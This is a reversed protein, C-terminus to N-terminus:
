NTAPAPKASLFIEKGSSKSKKALYFWGAILWLAAVGLAIYPEKYSMGAVLSSDGVKIPGILYFLMCIGNAIVGFVPVVFHKFGSFTHHEKFAVIAVVCTTMYLLFTGFNSILTVILVTNPLSAYTTPAFIGFSYWISKAYMPDLAAPSTGGLYILVTFIGIFISIIGLAWIAKHPSLTTPHLEGFHDGVEADRGMAYTVRAGTSLCALTTGILALFVTFAQVEMFVVGAHPSGFAWAGVIKMMDGIPASSAGASIMTYGSNLFFNAAFYEILYCIAGQIILSLLIARAIDKKPNIAEEGMSSVSEFGVLCLIAICAQVVINSFGHPAVVSGPSEHYNFTLPNKADGATGTVGGDKATYSINFPKTQLKGDKDKLWKGDKDTQFDPYPDGTSLGMGTLAALLDADKNKTKDLDDDAVQRDQTKIAAVPQLKGDKDKVYKGDKDKVFDYLPDGVKAGAAKEFAQVEADLKTKAPDLDDATLNVSSTYKPSGDAYSDPTPTVVGKDDTTTVPTSAVMYDVASGNSLQIAHVGEAHSSRYGIAMVSFVLLAVIQIVNMAINVSTTGNVGRYAIYTVGLSFVVCIIVMLLPSNYSSTFTNPWFVSAMYGGLLATVGVMLGPYGWYYLHSAWGTFFKIFRAYKFKKHDAMFAQEAYLYSSGAGPYLKSLEAYSIATALCLVLAVVFGFWMSSAAMPAGYLAQEEFTLWLFAGPAILAMANFTLSTLGLTPKMTATSKEAMTKQTTSPQNRFVVLIAADM